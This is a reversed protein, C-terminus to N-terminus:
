MQRLRWLCHVTVLIVGVTMTGIPLFATWTFREGLLYAVVASLTIAAGYVIMDIGCVRNAPYWVNPDSLTKATRFGYLRNPKVRGLALPIGLGVFLVGTVAFFIAIGLTM